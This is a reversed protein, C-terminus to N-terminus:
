KFEYKVFREVMFPYPIDNLNPSGKLMIIPSTVKNHIKVIEHSIKSDIFALVEENLGKTDICRVLDGIELDTQSILLHTNKARKDKKAM